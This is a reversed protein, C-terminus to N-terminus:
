NKLGQYCEHLQIFSPVQNLMNSTIGTIIDQYNGREGFCNGRKQRFYLISEFQDKLKIKIKLNGIQM